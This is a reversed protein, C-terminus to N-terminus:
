ILESQQEIPTATKSDSLVYVDVGIENVGVLEGGGKLIREFPQCAYCGDEGKPCTFHGLKRALRVKKAEALVKEHADDLDPLQQEDLDAGFRLYWYSASEVKRHQTNHVLLHYIPLQLSTPAEKSKSTKFDIISVADQAPIYQLWDIKGCLIIEQEESLWYNPITAKIKIALKALPGPHEMVMRLMEEGQAKHSLESEGSLFGGNKGSFKEWTKQYREILSIKFREETPITSLSELVDHVASGLALSPTMIQMRRGTSPNKYVHKLYYSRPCQLFSTLSTHSVWTAAFKDPM